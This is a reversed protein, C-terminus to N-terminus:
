PPSTDNFFPAAPPGLVQLVGPPSGPTNELNDDGGEVFDIFVDDVSSARVIAMPRRDALGNWVRRYQDYGDSGPVFIQGDFGARSLDHLSAVAIM